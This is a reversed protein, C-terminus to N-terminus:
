EKGLCQCSKKAESVASEVRTNLNAVFSGSHERTFYTLAMEAWDASLGANTTMGVPVPLVSTM